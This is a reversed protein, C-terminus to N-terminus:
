SELTKFFRQYLTARHWRPLGLAATYEVLAKWLPAQWNQAVGLGEVTKGAEWQTLWDPRYVLYQDFLDAARASLQFL